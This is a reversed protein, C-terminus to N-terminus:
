IWLMMLSGGTILNAEKLADEMEKRQVSLAFLAALREVAQLDHSTFGGPKDALAIQGVAKGDILAPVNLFNKRPELGQPLVPDKDSSSVFDTYFSRRTNLARGWLGPYRSNERDPLLLVPYEKGGERTFFDKEPYVTLVAHESDVTSVFGHPCDTLSRATNLVSEAIEQLSFARSILTDSVTALEKNVSLEWLLEKEAKIREVIEKELQETSQQLAATRERVKDELEEEHSRVKKLLINYPKMLSEQFATKALCYLSCIRGLVGFTTNLPQSCPTSSFVATLELLFTMLVATQLFVLSRRSFEKRKTYFIFSSLLFLSCILYESNRLLATERQEDVSCFEIPFSQSFVSHFLLAVLSLYTLILLYENLKKQLFFFALLLSISEIYRAAIWLQVASSNETIGQFIDIDEKYILSHVFDVSGIFLYAIGLFLFYHNKQFRRTNWTFLFISAILIISFLEALVQFLLHSYVNIWSLGVLTAFLVLCAPSFSGRVRETDAKM